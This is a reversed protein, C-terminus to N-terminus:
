LGLDKLCVLYDMNNATELAQAQEFTLPQVPTPEPEPYYIEGEESFKGTVADYFWDIDVEDAQPHSNLDVIYDFEPSGEKFNEVFAGIQMRCKSVLAYRAKSM